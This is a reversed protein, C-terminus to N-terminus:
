AAVPTREEVAVPAPRAIVGDLTGDQWALAIGSRRALKVAARNTAMISFSVTRETRLYDRVALKSLRSAVGRGRHTEAVVVALDGRGDRRSTVVRAEGVCREGDFALWVTASEVDTLFRLLSPDYRPTARFFRNFRSEPSLGEYLELILDVDAPTAARFTVTCGTTLTPRSAARAPAAPVPDVHTPTHSFFM